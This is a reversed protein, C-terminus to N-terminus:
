CHEEVYNGVLITHANIQKWIRAGVVENPRFRVCYCKTLNITLEYQNLNTWKCALKSRRFEAIKM